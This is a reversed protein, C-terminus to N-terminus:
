RRSPRPVDSVAVLYLDAAALAAPDASWATGSSAAVAAGRAANRAFIQVLRLGEAAAVARALSEAVNGSGVVVVDRLPASVPMNNQLNM